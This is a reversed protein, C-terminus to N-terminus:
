RGVARLYREFSRDVAQRGAGIINLGWTFGYVDDFELGDLRQRIGVVADPHMPMHNPVSHMFAVHRRDQAVHLSDGSLLV